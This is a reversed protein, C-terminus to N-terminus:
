RLLRALTPLFAVSALFVALVIWKRWRPSPPELRPRLPNLAEDDYARTM